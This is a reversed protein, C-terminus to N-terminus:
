MSGLIGDDHQCYIQPPIPQEDSPSDEQIRCSTNKYLRVSTEYAGVPEM